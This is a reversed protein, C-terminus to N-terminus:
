RSLSVKDYQMENRNVLWLLHLQWLEKRKSFHKRSVDGCDFMKTFGTGGYILYPFFYSVFGDM